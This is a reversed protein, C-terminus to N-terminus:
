GVVIGRGVGFGSLMLLRSYSGECYCGNDLLLCVAKWLIPRVVAEVKYGYGCYTAAKALETTIYKEYYLLTLEM